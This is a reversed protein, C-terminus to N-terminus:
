APQAARSTTAQRQCRARAIRILLEVEPSWPAKGLATFAREVHGPISRAGLTDAGLRAFDLATKLARGAEPPPAGCVGRYRRCSPRDPSRPHIASVAAPRTRFLRSSVKKGRAASFKETFASTKTDSALRLHCPPFLQSSYM